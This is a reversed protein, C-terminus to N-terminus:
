HHHRPRTRSAKTRKSLGAPLVSPTASQPARRPPLSLAPVECSVTRRRRLGTTIPMQLYASGAFYVLGIREGKPKEM